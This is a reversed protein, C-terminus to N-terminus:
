GSSSRAPTWSASRAWAVLCRCACSPTSSWSPMAAPRFDDAGITQFPIGLRDLAYGRVSTDGGAFFRESGPVDTVVEFLPEGDPGFVPNGDADLVQAERPFGRALGLRAGAALITARRGPLRRYFFGQAFSKVFGVQSGIARAAVDNDWGMLAGRTPALPDDRTDRIVAASLTSLRVDPFLRDILPKDEPALREELLSARELV